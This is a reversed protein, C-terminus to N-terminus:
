STYYALHAITATNDKRKKDEKQNVKPTTCGM